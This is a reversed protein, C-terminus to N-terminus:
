QTVIVPFSQSIIRIDWAVVEVVLTPCVVVEVVVLHEAVAEELIILVLELEEVLVLMAAAPQLLVPLQVLQLIPEMQDQLGQARVPYVRLRLDVMDGMNFDLQVEQAVERVVAVAQLQVLV